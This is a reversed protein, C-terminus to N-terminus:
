MYRRIFYHLFLVAYSGYMAVAYYLSNVHLICGPVSHYNRYGIAIIWLCLFMQAIQLVTIAQAIKSHLRVGAARVAYYTYMITHVFANSCSFYHQLTGTRIESCTYYCYLLVTIHHYWHLFQLPRKRLIIFATDGLEIIKFFCFLFNWLQIHTDYFIYPTCLIYNIGYKLNAHILHPLLSVCVLFSFAALTVNWYFLPKKINFPSSYSMCKKGALILLLYLVVAIVPIHFNERMWKEGSMMSYQSELRGVLPLYSFLSGVLEGKM